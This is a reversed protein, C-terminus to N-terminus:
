RLRMFVPATGVSQQLQLIIYSFIRTLPSFFRPAPSSLFLVRAKVDLITGNLPFNRTNSNGLLSHSVDLRVQGAPAQLNPEPVGTVYDRLAALQEGYSMERSNYTLKNM